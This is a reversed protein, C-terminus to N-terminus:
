YLHHSFPLAEVMTEQSAYQQVSLVPPTIFPIPTSIFMHPYYSTASTAAVSATAVLQVSGVNGGVIRGEPREM